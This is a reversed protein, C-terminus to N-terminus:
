SRKRKISNKMLRQKMGLEMFCLQSCTNSVKDKIKIFDKQCNECVCTRDIKPKLKNNHIASCSSSCFYNSSKRLESKFRTTTKNCEKCIITQKEKKSSINVSVGSYILLSNYPNKGFLISLSQKHCGRLTNLKIFENRTPTRGLEKVVKLLEEKAQDKTITANKATM